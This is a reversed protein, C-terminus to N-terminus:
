ADRERERTHTNSKCTSTPLYIHIYLYTYAFPGGTGTSAQRSGATARPLAGSAVGPHVRHPSRTVYLTNNARAGTDPSHKKTDTVYLKAKVLYENVGFSEQVLRDDMYQGRWGCQACHQLVIQVVLACYIVGVRGEKHIGYVM